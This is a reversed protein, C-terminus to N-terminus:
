AAAASPSSSTLCRGGQALGALTVASSLGLAALSNSVVSHCQKVREIEETTLVEGGIIKAQALRISMAAGAAVEIIAKDLASPKRGLKETLDDAILSVLRAVKTRRDLRGHATRRTCLNIESNLATM